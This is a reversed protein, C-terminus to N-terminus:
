RNPEENSPVTRTDTVSTWRLSLNHVWTEADERNAFALGNPCWKDDDGTQVEPKWSRPM